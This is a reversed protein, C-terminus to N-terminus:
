LLPVNLSIRGNKRQGQVILDITKYDSALKTTSREPVAALGLGQILVRWEAGGL